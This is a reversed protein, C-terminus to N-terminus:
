RARTLSLMLLIIFGLDLGVAPIDLGIRIKIILFFKTKVTLWDYDPDSDVALFLLISLRGVNGNMDYRLWAGMGHTWCNLQLSALFPWMIWCM